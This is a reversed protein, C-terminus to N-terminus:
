PRPHREDADLWLRPYRCLRICCLRHPLLGLIAKARRSLLDASTPCPTALFKCRTYWSSLLYVCGPFYGLFTLQQRYCASHFPGAELLGLLVRCGVMQEWNKTFGMGQPSNTLGDLFASVSESVVLIAGWSVVITGLFFTPGVKRTIVTM